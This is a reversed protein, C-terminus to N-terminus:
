PCLAFDLASEKGSPLPGEEAEQLMWGCVRAQSLIAQGRWPGRWSILMGRVCRQELERSKSQRKRTQDVQWFGVYRLLEFSAKV